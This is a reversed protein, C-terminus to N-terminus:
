GTRLAFKGEEYPLGLARSTSCRYRENKDTPDDLLSWSKNNDNPGVKSLHMYPGSLHEEFADWSQSYLYANYSSRTFERLFAGLGTANGPDATTVLDHLHQGGEYAVVEMAEGPAGFSDLATRQAIHRTVVHPISEDVEPDMLQAVLWVSAEEDTHTSRYTVLDSRLTNSSGWYTTVAVGDFYDIPNLVPLPNDPYPPDGPNAANETAAYNWVYRNLMRNQLWFGNDTQNGIYNKLQSRQGTATFLDHCIKAVQTARMAQYDRNSPAIFNIDETGWLAHAQEYCWAMQLGFPGASNWIENGWEVKAMLGPDLNDRIYTIFQTVFDDDARLPINFWGHCGLENCFAVMYEVPMGATPSGYGHSFTRSTPTPREAWTVISSNISQMWDMFRVTDADRHLDLYGPKFVQGDNFLAEESLLFMHMDRIYNGNDNPDTDLMTIDVVYSPSSPNTFEYRGYGDGVPPTHTVDSVGNLQLTGEGKYILVWPGEVGDFAPFAWQTKLTSILGTPMVMPYGDSDLTPAIKGWSTAMEESTAPYGDTWPRAQKMVDVLFPEVYDDITSLGYAVGTPQM